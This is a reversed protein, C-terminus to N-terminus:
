GKDLHTVPLTSGKLRETITATKTNESDSLDKVEAAIIQSAKDIYKSLEDPNTIVTQIKQCLEEMKHSNLPPQPKGELALYKILMLIHYRYRNYRQDIQKNRILYEVKYLTYASIYYAIPRHDNNFIDQSDKLLRGYYRSALHPKDLFMSAFAKIQTPITIVRVKEIEATNAYQKSRREYYLRQTGSYTQYYAELKKNFDNLAMLQEDSVETQRNTAKVIKSVTDEDLTSIIKVSVYVNDGISDKNYYLIHSTQCGNVIQYDGLLFRNRVINRLEKCIITIGNNLIVFKDSDSSSLTAAIERNIDNEGQFDRINDYLISKIVGDENSVLSLFTSAPLIGLYAENIGDMEPLAIRDPFDIESQIKDITAKYLRQLYDADVPTFIVDSFLNESILDSRIGEIRSTVNQDETWRGTTVYYLLCKPKKRVCVMNSLIHSIIASKEKITDNQVMEPQEKFLDRVGFGFTAIDSGSFSSSTKAQVFIFNLDTISHTQEVLDDFEEPSHILVNNAIIAIGDIGGDGGGGTVIDSLDFSDAYERSLVCYCAFMEFIKSEDSTSHLEQSLAFNNMYGKTIRDMRSSRRM